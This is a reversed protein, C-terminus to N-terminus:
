LNLEVDLIIKTDKVHIDYFILYLDINKTVILSLKFKSIYNLNKREIVINLITNNSNLNSTSISM